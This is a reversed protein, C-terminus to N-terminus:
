TTAEKVTVTVNFTLDGVTVELVGTEAAIEPTGASSDEAKAAQLTITKSTNNTLTVVIEGDDENNECTITLKALSDATGMYGLWKASVPTTEKIGTVAIDFTGAQDGAAVVAQAKEASKEVAVLDATAATTSLGVIFENDAINKDLTITYTANGSNVESNFTPAGLTWKSDAKPVLTTKAAQAVVQLAYGAKVYDGNDFALKDLGTKPDSVKYAPTASPWAVQYAKNYQVTKGDDETATQSSWTIYRRGGPAFTVVTDSTDGAIWLGDEAEFGLDVTGSAPWSGDPTDPNKVIKDGWKIFLGAGQAEITVQDPADKDWETISAVRINAIGSADRTGTVFQKGNIKYTATEGAAGATTTIMLAKGDQIYWAKASAAVHLNALEM